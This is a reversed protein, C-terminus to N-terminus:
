KSASFVAPNSFDVAPPFQNALLAEVIEAINVPVVIHMNSKLEDLSIWEQNKFIELEESTLAQPAITESDKHQLSGAFFHETIHVTENTRTLNHSGSFFPNESKLAFSTIGTEEIVERKIAETLAEDAHELRGGPTIYFEPRGPIAIRRLLIRNAHNFLIIRVAAEQKM